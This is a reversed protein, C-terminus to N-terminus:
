DSTVVTVLLALSKDLELLIIKVSSSGSESGGKSPPGLTVSNGSSKTSLLLSISSSLM